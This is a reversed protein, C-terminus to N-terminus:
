LELEKLRSLEKDVFHHQTGAQEILALRSKKPLVLQEDLNFWPYSGCIHPHMKAAVEVDERSVYRKAWAEIVHKLPLYQKKHKIKQTTKQADFFEWAIRICDPHEHFASENNSINTKCAEVIHPHKIHHKSM